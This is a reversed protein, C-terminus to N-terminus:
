DGLRQGTELPYGKLYDTASMATRGAPQVRLVLLNGQGTAVLFGDTSLEIIEGPIGGRGAEYKGPRATLVKLVEGKRRTRAGPVPSLARVQRSLTIADRTWELEREEPRIPPAFTAESHAQAIRPAQGERILTVGASAAEAGLAALRDHLEGFNEGEEIQTERTLIIDGADMEPAMWQLTVGTSPEGAMIARQIPAAGRYRPLLSAHLNVAGLRPIELVEPSLIEGFAVVFLLDPSAERVLAIGNEASVREPQQVPLGLEQAAQKVPPPRLKRGRGAPRDPPTIVCVIEDGGAAVARLVPVA